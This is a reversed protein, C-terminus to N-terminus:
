TGYAGYGYPRGFPPRYANPTFPGQPAINDFPTVFIPGLSAINLKLFLLKKARNQDVVLSENYITM